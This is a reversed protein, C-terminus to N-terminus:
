FVSRLIHAHRPPTPSSCHQSLSPLPILNGQREFRWGFKLTTKMISPAPPMVGGAADEGESKLFPSLHCKVLSFNVSWVAAVIKSFREM